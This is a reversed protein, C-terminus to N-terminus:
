ILREEAYSLRGEIVRAPETYRHPETKRGNAVHLVRTGRATLYDAILARHCQWWVAEACMVATIRTAAVNELRGIAEAFAPTEMYDAYGRFSRNRWRTNRSDARPTRRGGLDPMWAYGVGARPLEAALVERNFHPFRRSAPFRRVDAVFQVRHAGLIGIFDELALTSHGITLVM